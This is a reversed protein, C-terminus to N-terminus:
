PHLSIMQEHYQYQPLWSRMTWCQESGDLTSFHYHYSITHLVVLTPAYSLLRSGTNGGHNFSCLGVENRNLPELPVVHIRGIVSSPTKSAIRETHM